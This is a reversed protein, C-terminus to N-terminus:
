YIRYGTSYTHYSTTALGRIKDVKAGGSSVIIISSTQGTNLSLVCSSTLIIDGSSGYFNSLGARTPLESTAYQVGNILCYAMVKTGGTGDTKATFDITYSFKYIGTEPATFIGTSTNYSSTTDVLTQGVLTYVTGDGTVPTSNTPLYAFYFPVPQLENITNNTAM